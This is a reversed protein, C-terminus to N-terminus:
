FTEIGELDADLEDHRVVHADPSTALRQRELARRVDGPSVGGEVPVDLEVGDPRWSLSGGRVAATLRGMQTSLNHVDRGLERATLWGGFVAGVALAIGILLAALVPDSLM